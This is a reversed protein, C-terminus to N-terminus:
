RARFGGLSICQRLHMEVRGLGAFTGGGLMLLIALVTLFSRSGPISPYNM